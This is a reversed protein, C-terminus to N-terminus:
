FREVFVLSCTNSIQSAGSGLITIHGDKFGKISIGATTRGWEPYLM